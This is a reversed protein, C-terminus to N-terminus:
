HMKVTLLYRKAQMVQGRCLTGSLIPPIIDEVVGRVIEDNILKGAEALTQTAM